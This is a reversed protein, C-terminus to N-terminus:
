GRPPEGEQYPDLVLCPKDFGETVEHKSNNGHIRCVLIDGVEDTWVEKYFCPLLKLVAMEFPTDASPVDTM